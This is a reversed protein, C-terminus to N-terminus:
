ISSNEEKHSIRHLRKRENIKEKNDDAYKRVNAIIRERNDIYYEQNTRIRQPYCTNLKSNINEFWEREKKKAEQVDKCPYKEIEIMCWNGFGGKNRITKYLKTNFEKGKSYTSNFKHQQKRRVFDTTHGVYCETISLDNCVIKYIVTNAYDIPLHPM